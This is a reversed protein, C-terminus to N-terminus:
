RNHNVSASERKFFSDSSRDNRQALVVDAGKKWEAILEPLVEIPDQLDVDMPIVVDGTANSLGAMLAAEKGFNRTFSLPLVLTDRDALSYIINETDDRSGDNVFVIEVEYKQLPIFNRITDYFLPITEEENFVPVVLSIKM